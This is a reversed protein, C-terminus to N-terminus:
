APAFARMRRPARSSSQRFRRGDAHASVYANVNLQSAVRVTVDVDQRNQWLASSLRAEEAADLIDGDLRPPVRRLQQRGRHELRAVGRRKAVRPYVAGHRDRVTRNGRDAGARVRSAHAVRDM